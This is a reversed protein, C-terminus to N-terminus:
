GKPQLWSAGLGAGDLAGGKIYRFNDLDDPDGKLANVFLADYYNSVGRRKDQILANDRVDWGGLRRAGPVKPAVNRLIEVNESRENVTIQPNYLPPNDLPGESRPNRILTNNRITLGLTEGVSIGHLHANIIVNEEILMERYFLERGARGTDVEENRIFISQTFPGRGSNLLNNRIVVRETPRKTRTTWFQIMDPHGRDEPNRRFDSIHNGEVRLDQVQAFNMGDIRLSHMRNALVQLQRCDVCILGTGFTHFLNRHLVARHCRTLGLAFGWGYGDAPKGTGRTFDGEFLCDSIVADSTDFLSFAKFNYDHTKDYSYDFVLKEFAVHACNRVRLRGIRAPKEPDASTLLIPAGPAGHRGRMAVRPYRGPALRLTVGVAARQLASKLADAGDVDIVTRAPTDAWPGTPPLCVFAAGLGLFARRTPTMRHPLSDFSYM